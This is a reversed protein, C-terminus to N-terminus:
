YEFMIFWQGNPKLYVHKTWKVSGDIVNISVDPVTKKRPTRYHKHLKHSYSMPGYHQYYYKDWHPDYFCSKVM